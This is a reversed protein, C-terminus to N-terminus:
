YLIMQVLKILSRSQTSIMLLISIFKKFGDSREEFSYKTKNVIKILIENGNPLLQISTDKFDDWINQFIKTVSKSVQEFLNSYDGDQLKSDEFEKKINERNCLTFINELSKYTSPKQIFANIEISNPLLYDDSYQWYHCIFPNETYLSQIIEFIKLDLEFQTGVETNIENSNVLLPNILKYDDKEYIWHTFRPKANDSILIEIIFEKFATEIYNKLSKQNKFEINEVGSYKSRFIQEAKEIDFDNLKFIAKIDYFGIQENDIKKRKDKSKIAYKEFVAAVAKIANSKGAENKGLLILCNHDFEITAKKISRFNNIVVRSLEM